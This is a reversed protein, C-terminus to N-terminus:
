LVLMADGYSFFRFGKDLAQKYLELLKERGLLASVMLILSSQPLHFNTMLHDVLQFNYGPYIFLDSWGRFPEIGGKISAVSELVRVTTTGVALVPRNEHQARCILEASEPAIEIYEPHMEHKRIDQCRIPSFTGYGVYLTVETWQLGKDKIKQVLSPSFHLGATPAAVSGSKEERAYVTQYREKDIPSDTRQIYPPLPVHGIQELIIKLEGKWFLDGTIRGYDEQNVVVLKCNQNFNVEIGARIKSKLRLVGEIRASKWEDELHVVELLPLPTLLLFEVKGGSDARQGFLRAPVVKSNNSVILAEPPLFDVIKEFHTWIIEGTQRKYILLRSKERQESPRQAIQRADLEFNYNQLDYDAGLEAM